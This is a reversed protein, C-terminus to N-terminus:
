MEFKLDQMRLYLNKNGEKIKSTFNKNEEEIKDIM